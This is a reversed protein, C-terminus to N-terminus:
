CTAGAVFLEPGKALSDPPIASWQVRSVGCEAFWTEIQERSFGLWVHGMEHRYEQRQHPQMDVIVLRGGPKVTRVAEMLVDSPSAVYPLVMVLFAVDLENDDLPLQDLNGRRLEVNTRSKLRKGAARLMAASSDVAIVRKAFPAVKESTSGTGCGFDGVVTEDSLSAALAWTDIRHGFLEARLSDWQGASSSFFAESRQRREALVKELRQDDQAAAQTTSAQDRLLNWLRRRPTEFQDLPMRYFRSTGDRRSELWSDDGLVKLHRSITSQPAQIVSCMEAVTLESGELLRLLRARTMDSLAQMWTIMAPSHSM